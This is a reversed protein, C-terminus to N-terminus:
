PRFISGQAQGRFFTVNFHYVSLVDQVFNDINPLLPLTILDPYQGVPLAPSYNGRVSEVETWDIEDRLGKIPM